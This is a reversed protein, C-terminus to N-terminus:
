KSTATDWHRLRKNVEEIWVQQGKNTWHTDGKKFYQTPDEDTSFISYVDIVPMLLPYGRAPNQLDPLFGNYPGPQVISATNPIISLYVEDFGQSKYHEYIPNLQSVYYSVLPETVEAYSSMYLDNNVSERIFLYNGDDSVVVDGSARNFLYYNMSAKLTRIGAMFNYTFLNYEINQNIAKNFFMDIDPFTFGAHKHDPVTIFYGPQRLQAIVNNEPRIHSFIFDTTHFNGRSFREGGEIILINIKTTDLNYILDTYDRRAFHFSNLGYYASDPVGMVYSDGYMYLDIKRNGKSQANYIYKDTDAFKKVNDLYAMRALDGTPAHHPGWWAGWPAAERVDSIQKMIPKSTSLSIVTLGFIISLISTLKKM